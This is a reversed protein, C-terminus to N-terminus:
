RRGERRLLEPPIPAGLRALERLRATVTGLRGARGALERLRDPDVPRDPDALLRWADARDLLGYRGPWWRALRLLLLETRPLTRGTRDGLALPVARRLLREQGAAGDRGPLWRRHLRLPLRDPGILVGGSGLSAALRRRLGAPRWGAGALLREAEQGAGALLALDLGDTARAAPEAYGTLALALGHILVAPVGRDALTELVAAARSVLLQHRAWSARYAGKLRGEPSGPDSGRRRLNLYIQPLLRTQEPGFRDLPGELLVARWARGAEAGPLLAAQLLRHDPGGPRV